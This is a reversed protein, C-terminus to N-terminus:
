KKDSIQISYITDLTGQVIVRGTDDIARYKRLLEREDANLVSPLSSDSDDYAPGSKKTIVLPSVHLVEAIKEIRDRRMNSIQGSEGRSVTAEAVGVANAVESQTLGRAARLERLKRGIDDTM